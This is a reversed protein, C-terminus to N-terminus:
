HWFRVKADVDRSSFVIAVMIRQCGQSLWESYYDAHMHGNVVHDVVDCEPTQLQSSLQNKKGNVQHLVWCIVVM